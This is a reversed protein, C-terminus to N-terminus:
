VPARKEGRQRRPPLTLRLVTGILLALLAGTIGAERGPLNIEVVSGFLLLM